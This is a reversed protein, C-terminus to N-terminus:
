KQYRNNLFRFFIYKIFWKCVDKISAKEKENNGFVDFEYEKYKKLFFTDVCANLYWFKSWPKPHSAFHLMVTSYYDDKKALLRNFKKDIYLVDNDIIVNLADQDPFILDDKNNEIYNMLKDLYIGDEWKNVNFILLGSNFYKGSTLRLKNKRKIVNNEMDVIAALPYDGLDLSVLECLDNLCIIDADLYIIKAVKNIILPLLYRLYMAVSWYKTIPYKSFVDENIEYLYINMEYKSALNDLIDKYYKTIGFSLVYFNYGLVNNNKCISFISVIANKIFKGDVGYAIHINTKLLSKELKTVIIKDGIYKM